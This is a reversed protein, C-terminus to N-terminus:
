SPGEAMSNLRVERSSHPSSAAAAGPTTPKSKPRPRSTKNRLPPKARWRLASHRSGRLRSLYSRALFHFHPGSATGPEAPAMPQAAIDYDDREQLASPLASVAHNLTDTVTRLLSAASPLRVELVKPRSSADRFFAGANRSHPQGRRKARWVCPTLLELLAATRAWRDARARFSKQRSPAGGVGDNGAGAQRYGNM